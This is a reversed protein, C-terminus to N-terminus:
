KIKTAKRRGKFVIVLGISTAIGYIYLLSFGIYFVFNEPIKFIIVGLFVSFVIMMFSILAVLVSIKMMVLRKKASKPEIKDDFIQTKKKWITWALIIPLALSFPISASILFAIGIVAIVVIIRNIIKRKM